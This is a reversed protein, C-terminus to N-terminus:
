DITKKVKKITKKEEVPTEIVKLRKNTAKHFQNKSGFYRQAIALAVGVYIDFDDQEACKIIEHKGDEFVVTILRKDKNALVNRIELETLIPRIPTWGNGLDLILDKWNFTKEFRTRKM